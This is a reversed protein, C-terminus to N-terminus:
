KFGPTVTACAPSVAYIQFNRSRDPFQAIARGVVEIAAQYGAPTLKNLLHRGRLLMTYAELDDHASLMQSGRVPRDLTVQLTAAIDRAIEDPITFVHEIQRDFSATRLRHGTAADVVSASIRLYNGSRRVTGEIITGVGLKRGIERVDGTRERFHFMSTRAIVKLDPIGALTNIIEDTIGDCFYEQDAEPSLNAFPMVAVARADLEPAARPLEVLAAAGPEERRRFTPVYSGREFVIRIPDGEGAKEYYAKLKTRLRRAEVRVISDIRPDYNEDRDFVDRGISYEKLRGTERALTREVTVRLFRCLRESNVFTPSNVIREVQALVESPPLEADGSKVPDAAPQM